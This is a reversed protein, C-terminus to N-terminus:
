LKFFKSIIEELEEKDRYGVEQHVSGDTNIFYLTPMARIQFLKALETDQDVDIKYLLIKDKRTKMVANLEPTLMKCPGCWVAYFDLIVPKDTKLVVADKHLTYDWIKEKFQKVNVREQAACGLAVAMLCCLALTRKM